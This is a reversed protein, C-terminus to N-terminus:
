RENEMKDTNRDREAALESALGYIRAFGAAEEGTWGAGREGYVAGGRGLLTHPSRTGTVTISGDALRVRAEGTVREQSKELYAEIDRMVPDFWLGEHLLSGYTEGLTSKLSLQRGTLVLKELERHATILVIAAPAEFALRGKLGLITDGVHIGRGVGHRGARRNLTEILALPDMGEGDIATPLGNEFSITLDEPERAERRTLKFVEEPVEAWSDHTEGGGITVGWLGENLSYLRTARDVAFGREELYDAEEDRSLGLDRIPALVALDPALARFAADFRVGDNGAGTSGHAVGDAGTERAAATVAEAQATREAGVAMPYVGGRLCNGRILHSVFGDYVRRRADVHLHREVGLEEARARIKEAEDASVGGTDVTVTVVSVGKEVRLWVAAFSTDLGGSFALAIRKM